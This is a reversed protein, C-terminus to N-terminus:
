PQPPLSPLSPLSSPLNATAKMLTDRKGGDWAVVIQTGDVSEVTGTARDTNGDQCRLALTVEGAEGTEGAVGAEKAEGQCVRAETIVVAQGKRVTLNVPKGDTIGAWSGEVGALTASGPGADTGGTSPSAPPPTASPGGKGSDDGSGCGTLAVAATVCAAVAVGARVSRDLKHM